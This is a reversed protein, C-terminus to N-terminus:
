SLTPPGLDTECEIVTAIRMTTRDFVRAEDAVIDAPMVNNAIYDVTGRWIAEDDFWLETIVDYPLEECTGSEAHRQPELYRRVYRVPGKTYKLALPVHSNEYYDRFAAVTMGPRRKMFLLIKYISGSM